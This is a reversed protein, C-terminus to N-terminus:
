FVGGHSPTNSNAGSPANVRLAICGLGYADSNMTDTMNCATSGSHTTQGTALSFSQLLNFGTGAGTNGNNTPASIYLLDGDATTSITQSVACPSGCGSAPTTANSTGAVGDVALAAGVTSHFQYLEISVTCSNPNSITFTYTGASAASDRVYWIGYGWTGANWPLFGDASVSAPAWKSWTNGASDSSLGINCAGPTNFPLITAILTNHVTVSTLTTAITLTGASSTAGQNVCTWNAGMSTSACAAWGSVASLLLLLISRM